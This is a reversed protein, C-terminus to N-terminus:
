FRTFMSYGAYLVMSLLVAAILYGLFPHADADEKEGPFQQQDKTM